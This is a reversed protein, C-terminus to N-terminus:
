RGGGRLRGGAVRRGRGLRGGGRRGGGRGGRGVATRGGRRAVPRPARRGGRRGRLRGRGVRRGGGRCRGRVDRRGCRRGRRGGGLGRRGGRDRVVLGDVRVRLGRRQRGAVRRVDGREDTLEGGLVAHRKLRDDAGPDAAPDALLVDKLRGARLAGRFGRGGFGGGGRGRRGGGGGGRRRGRGRRRGGGRGCPRRDHRGGQAAGRLPHGERTLDDGLPHDLRQLGRCLEGGHDLGVDRVDGPEAVPGLRGELGALADLEREQREERLRGDLCELHVWHQVRDDVALRLFDGVVGGLVEADRHVGLAAQHHWHDVAGAVQVDAAEGALDGVERAAGAVALDARVFQGAARERQGVGAAAARQEVRRDDVLRLHADEADAAHDLAGDDDHVRGEAFDDRDAGHDVQRQGVVVPEHVAGVGGPEEDRHLVTELLARELGVEAELAAHLYRDGTRGAQDTGRQRSAQPRVAVLDDAEDPPRRPGIALARRAVTRGTVSRGTLDAPVRARGVRAVRRKRTDVCHH